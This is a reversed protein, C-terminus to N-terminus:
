SQWDATSYCVGNSILCETQLSHIVLCSFTGFVTGADIELFWCLFLPPSHNLQCRRQPKTYCTVLPQQRFSQLLALPPSAPVAHLHLHRVWFRAIGKIDWVRADVKRSQAIIIYVICVGPKTLQKWSRSKNERQILAQCSGQKPGPKQALANTMNNAADSMTCPKNQKQKTNLSQNDDTFQCIAKNVDYHYESTNNFIGLM